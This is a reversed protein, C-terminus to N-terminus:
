GMKFVPALEGLFALLESLTVCIGKAPDQSSVSNATVRGKIGTSKEQGLPRPVPVWSTSLASAKWEMARVWQGEFGREHAQEM